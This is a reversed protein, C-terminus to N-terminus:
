SKGNIEDKVRKDIIRKALIVSVALLAVGLYSGILIWIGTLILNTAIYLICGLAAILMTATENMM